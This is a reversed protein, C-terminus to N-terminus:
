LNILKKSGGLVQQRSLSFQDKLDRNLFRILWLININLLNTYEIFYLLQYGISRIYAIPLM